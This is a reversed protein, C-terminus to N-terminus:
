LLPLTIGAAKFCVHNVDLDIVARERCLFDMGLIIDCSLDDAVLFRQSVGYKGLELKTDTAGSIYLQEGKPGHVDFVTDLCYIDDDSVIRRSCVSVDAGTDVLAIMEKGAFVIRVNARFCRQRSGPRNAGDTGVDTIAFSRSGDVAASLKGVSLSSRYSGERQM